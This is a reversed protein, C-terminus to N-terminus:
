CEMARLIRSGLRFELDEMVGKVKNGTKEPRGLVRISVRIKEWDRMRFCLKLVRGLSINAVPCRGCVSVM